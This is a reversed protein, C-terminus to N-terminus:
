PSQSIKLGSLFEGLADKWPRVPVGFTRVIKDTALVSNKPRIAMRPSAGSDIPFVTAGEQFLSLRLGQASIEKAFDFWSTAGSNAYNYVGFKGANSEMIRVTAAALDKTLTPCGVQDRVVQVVSLDRFFRLM